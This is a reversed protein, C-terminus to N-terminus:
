QTGQFLIVADAIGAPPKTLDGYKLWDKFKQYEGWKQEDWVSQLMQRKVRQLSILLGNAQSDSLQFNGSELQKELLTLRGLDRIVQEREENSVQQTGSKGLYSVKAIEKSSGSTQEKADSSDPFFQMPTLFSFGIIATGFLAFFVGPGVRSVYISIGGPLEARGESDEKRGPMEMFMKYGLYIAIGGILVGLVREVTRWALLTNMDIDM